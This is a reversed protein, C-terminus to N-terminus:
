RHTVPRSDLGTAIARRAAARSRNEAALVQRGLRDASLWDLARRIRGRLSLAPLATGMRAYHQLQHSFEHAELNRILYEITSRRRPILHTIRLGPFVGTGLGILCGACSLDTDGGYGPQDGIPDLQLRLPNAATQEIYADAVLRRVCMGGGWAMSPAHNPDNSWSEKDILREALLHRLRQPAVLKADEFELEVRPSWTGLIPFDRAVQLSREILDPAAVTDDDMILLLDSSTDRFAAILAHVKGPTKEVILRGRLHWSIDVRGALAPRSNNDVILLDWADHSITQVRLSELVRNLYDMRPNYTPLIVTLSTSMRRVM